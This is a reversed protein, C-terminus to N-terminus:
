FSMMNVKTQAYRPQFNLLHNAPMYRQQPSKGLISPDAIVEGGKSAPSKHSPTGEMGRHTNLHNYVVQLLSLTTGM